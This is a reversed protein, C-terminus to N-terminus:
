MRLLSLLANRFNNLFFSWRCRWCFLDMTWASWLFRHYLSCSFWWHFCLSWLFRSWFRFSM